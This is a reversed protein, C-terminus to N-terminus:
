RSPGRDADVSEASAGDEVGPEASDEPTVETNTQDAGGESEASDEPTVETSTQDAGGESEPSDEPTVESPSSEIADTPNLRGTGADGEM